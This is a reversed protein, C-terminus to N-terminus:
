TARSASHSRHAIDGLLQLLFADACTRVTRPSTTTSGPRVATTADLGDATAALDLTISDGVQLAEPPIELTCNDSFCLFV